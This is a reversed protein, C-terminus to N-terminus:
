VRPQQGPLVPQVGRYIDHFDPMRYNVEHGMLDGAFALTLDV